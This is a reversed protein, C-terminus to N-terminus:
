SDDLYLFSVFFVSPVQGGIGPFIVLYTSDIKRIDDRQSRTLIALHGSVTLKLGQSVDMLRLKLNVSEAKDGKVWNYPSLKSSQIFPFIKKKCLNSFFDCQIYLALLM